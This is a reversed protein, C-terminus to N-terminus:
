LGMARRSDARAAQERREMEDYFRNLEMCARDYEEAVEPPVLSTEGRPLLYNVGNVSIFLNPDENPRERPVRVAVREKNKESEANKKEKESM